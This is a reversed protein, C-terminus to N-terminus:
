KFFNNGNSQLADSPISGYVSSSMQSITLDNKIVSTDIQQPFFMVTGYKTNFKAISDVPREYKEYKFDYAIQLATTPKFAKELRM